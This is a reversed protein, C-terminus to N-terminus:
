VLSMCLEKVAKEVEPSLEEGLGTQKPQIGIIIVNLDPLDIRLFDVLTKLSINHTSFSHTGIDEIGFAKIEGPQGGFDIADVVILTDPRIRKIERTHNEPATGGDILEVRIKFNSTQPKL